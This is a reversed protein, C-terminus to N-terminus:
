RSILIEFISIRFLNSNEFNEKPTGGQPHTGLKLHGFSTKICSDSNNSCKLMRIKSKNRAEHKPNGIKTDQIVSNKM